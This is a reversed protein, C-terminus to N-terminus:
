SRNRKWILYDLSFKGPGSVLLILCLLLYMVALEYGAPRTTFGDGKSIHWSIAGLMTFGLSAAAVPTILGLFWFFPVGVEVAVVLGQVIGPLADGAWATANGIKSLGHMLMGVGAVWRLLLLVLSHPTATLWLSIFKNM